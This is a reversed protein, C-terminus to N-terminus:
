AVSSAAHAHGARLSQASIASETCRAILERRSHAGFANFIRRIAARVTAEGRGQARAITASSAGDLLAELTRLENPSLRALPPRMAEADERFWARPALRLAGDVRDLHEGSKTIRQLDLATQAARLRFGLATWGELSRRYLREALDPNGGVESVRAAALSEAALVRRGGELWATSAGRPGLSQYMVIAKRAEAPMAFASEIAFDTLAARASVDVDSWKANRLIEWARRLQVAEAFRDGVVHSIEAARVEAMARNAPRTVRSTASRSLQWAREIDGDLLALTRLALAAGLWEAELAPKWPLRAFERGAREGATFDITESAAFALGYVARHRAREDARPNTASADLSRAFHRAADDYREARLAFSARLGHLEDALRGSALCHEILLHARALDGTEAADAAVIAIARTREDDFPGEATELSFSFGAAADAVEGTRRVAAAELAAALARLSPDDTTRGARRAAERWAAVDGRARALRARM